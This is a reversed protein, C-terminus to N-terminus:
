TTASSTVANGVVFSPSSNSKQPDLAPIEAEQSFVLKNGAALATGAFVLLLMAALWFKKVM